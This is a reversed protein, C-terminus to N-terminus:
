LQNTVCDVYRRTEAYPPVGGHRAVAGRGANYSAALLAPDATGLETTSDALYRAAWDIASAPDWPDVGYAAATAPMFQMLGEAGAPSRAAPNHGSECYGVAALLEADVGHRVGATHFLDAYATSSTDISNTSSATWWWLALVALGLTRLNM